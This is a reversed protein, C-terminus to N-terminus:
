EKPPYIFCDLANSIKKLEMLVTFSDADIKYTNCWRTLQNLNNGLWALQRSREKEINRDHVTTARTQRISYRIFESINMGMANCKAEIILREEDSVLARIEGKKKDRPQSKKM